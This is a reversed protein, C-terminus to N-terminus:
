GRRVPRGGEGSQEPAAQQEDPQRPIIMKFQDMDSDVPPAGPRGHITPGAPLLDDRRPSSEKGAAPTASRSSSAAGEGTMGPLEGGTAAAMRVRVAYEYNYAADMHGPARRLVDAYNAIVTDLARVM